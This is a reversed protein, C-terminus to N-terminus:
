ELNHALSNLNKESKIKINWVNVNIKVYAYIIKDYFLFIKLFHFYVLHTANNIDYM